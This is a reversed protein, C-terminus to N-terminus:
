KEKRKTKKTTPNSNQPLFEKKLTYKGIILALNLKSIFINKMKSVTQKSRGYERSIEDVTKGSLLMNLYERLRRIRLVKNIEVNTIFFGLDSRIQDNSKGEDVRKTIEIEIETPEPLISAINNEVDIKSIVDNEFGTNNPDIMDGFQYKMTEMNIPISTLLPKCEGNKKDNRAVKWDDPALLKQYEEFKVNRILNKAKILAISIAEKTVLFTEMIDNLEYGCFNARFINVELATLEENAVIEEEINFVNYIKM